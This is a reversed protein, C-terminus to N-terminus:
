IAEHATMEFIAPYTVNQQQATVYLRLYRYGTANAFTFTKYTSTTWNAINTQTDLTTWNSNDNSGEFTWSKPNYDAGAIGYITYKAPVKTVGSGLDFEIWQPPFGYSNWFTVVNGDIAKSADYAAGQDTSSTATSGTLIDSGYSVVTGAFLFKSSGIMGSEM